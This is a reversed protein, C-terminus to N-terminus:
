VNNYILLSSYYSDIPDINGLISNFIITSYVYTNYIRITGITGIYMYIIYNGLTGPPM